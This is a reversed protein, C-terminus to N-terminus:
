GALRPIEEPNNERQCVLQLMKRPVEPLLPQGTISGLSPRVGSGRNIIAILDKVLGNTNEQFLDVIM